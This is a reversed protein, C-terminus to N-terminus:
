PGTASSAVGAMHHAAIFGFTMAPGLTIGGGPYNGGMISALDNGAAYLGPIPAGSRDLVRAHEDGRLGDFTGLDGPVLKLAYFPGTEIPGVCPNPTRSPDGLYRNYATSGRGFAADEGRRAGENYDAITRALAAADIGARTALEALTRGRLLYGSRVYPGIPVPFPKAFGLGYRRITPHDVILFAEYAGQDQCVRVMAQVFDHYSDAENVFRVGARTVAIVGPKARDVFHPFVGITGDRHPVRSVPVWAAANPLRDEIAAGVQEGLRLGDGTNGPPAPSVHEVGTPAHRFLAKRREVDQPFGGCALVVGRRAMVRLMRGEREVLAGTVAGNEALVARVPARTWIPVGLDFASKALRAALANGNALRMARGHVARERAYRALLRAVYAASVVSRTVNFFHLLEKGSGIMMGLFTIERLPPRLRDVEAGLATADFPAACISRGGESGGPANPHYDSFQPGLVFQVATEREFFAVMRPGAQLFADVRAADFHNGAEHQLYTRAAAESDAIGARAALPNGPIWLWGGSRATTGGFLPEKEAVIVELGLKRATVAAALGGAGSGAVLVDCQLTEAPLSATDPM